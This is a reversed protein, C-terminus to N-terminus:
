IYLPQILLFVQAHTLSPIIHNCATKYPAVLSEQPSNKQLTNIQNYETPIKLLHLSKARNLSQLWLSSGYM